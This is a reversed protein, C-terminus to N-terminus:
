PPPPALPGGAPAPADAPTLTWPVTFAEGLPMMLALGSLTSLRVVVVGGVVPTFALVLECAVTWLWPGAFAEGVPMAWALSLLTSARPATALLASGPRVVPRVTFLLPPVCAPVTVRTIVPGFLVIRATTTVEVLPLVTVSGGDDSLMEPLMTVVVLELM